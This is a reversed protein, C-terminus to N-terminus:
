RGPANDPQSLDDIYKAFAPDFDTRSKAWETQFNKRRAWEKMYSSWASWQNREFSDRPYSYMLYARELMSQLYSLVMDERRHMEPTPPPPSNMPTDFVDLDPHDLCMKVYDLYRDDLATYADRVRSEHEILEAHKQEDLQKRQGQVFLTVALLVSVLTAIPVLKEASTLCREFVNEPMQRLRMEGARCYEKAWQEVQAGSVGLDSAILETDDGRLHRTVADARHKLNLGSPLSRKPQANTQIDTMENERHDCVIFILKIRQM